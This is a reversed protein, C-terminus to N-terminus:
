DGGDQQPKLARLHKNLTRRAVAMTRVLEPDNLYPRVLEKFLIKVKDTLENGMRALEPAANEFNIKALANLVTSESDRYYRREAIQQLKVGAGKIDKIGKVFVYIAKYM